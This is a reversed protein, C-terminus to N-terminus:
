QFLIRLYKYIYDIYFLVDFGRDDSCIYCCVAWRLTTPDPQLRPENTMLLHLQSRIPRLYNNKSSLSAKLFFCSSVYPFSWVKLPPPLSPDNEM